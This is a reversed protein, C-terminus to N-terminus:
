VNLEVNLVHQQSKVMQPQNQLIDQKVHVYIEPYNYIKIMSTAHNVVMPIFIVLIVFNVLTIVHFVFIMLKQIDEMVFVNKILHSLGLHDFGLLM